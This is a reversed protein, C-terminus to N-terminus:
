PMSSSIRLLRSEPNASCRVLGTSKRISSASITLTIPYPKPSTAFRLSGIRSVALSNPVSPAFHLIVVFRSKKSARPSWASSPALAQQGNITVYGDNVGDNGAGDIGWPNRLRLADPGVADVMYAHSAILPAAAPVNGVAFTASLGQALQQGILGLLAAGSNAQLTDSPTKGFAAYVEDMWGGSLSEYSASGTRFFAYAKEMLAVWLSNEKGLGAYAPNGWSWAPLSADVRVFVKQDGRSFQVAYTGNGLDVISQRILSPDTKAISSLTALYYCDGVFGQRVDDASPGTSAFLPLGSFNRYAIAADTVLPEPDAVRPGTLPSGPGPDNIFAGIRHVAGDLTEAASLDTIAEHGTNGIWFSDNGVGGAITTRRTAIAVFTDNGAGGDLTNTGSGAYITDNGSGGLLVNNGPGGYIVANLRVTKDIAVRNDGGGVRIMLGAEPATFDKVQRGHDSITLRSGVQRISINDDHIGVIQLQPGSPGTTQTFTLPLASFLRRTELPEIAPAPKQSAPHM